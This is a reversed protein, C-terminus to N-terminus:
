VLWGGARTLERDPMENVERRAQIRRPSIRIWTRRVTRRPVPM